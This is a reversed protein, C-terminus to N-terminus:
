ICRKNFLVVPFDDLDVMLPYLREMQLRWDSATKPALRNLPIWEAATMPYGEWEVFVYFKDTKAERAQVFVRKIEWYRRFDEDDCHAKDDEDEDENDRKRK